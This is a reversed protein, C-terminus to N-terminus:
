RERVLYGGDGMVDMSTVARTTASIATQDLWLTDGSVRYQFVGSAASNTALMDGKLAYSGSDGSSIFPAGDVTASRLLTFKNDPRLTLAAREHIMSGGPGAQKDEEHVYTGALAELREDGGCAALAFQLPLLAPMFLRAHLRSM